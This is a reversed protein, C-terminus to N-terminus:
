HLFGALAKFHNEFGLPLKQRPIRAWPSMGLPSGFLVSVFLCLACLMPVFIDYLCIKFHGSPKCWGPATCMVKCLAPATCLTCHVLTSTCCQVFSCFFFFFVDSCFINLEEDSRWMEDLILGRVQLSIEDSSWARKCM